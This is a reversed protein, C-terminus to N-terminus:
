KVANDIDIVEITSLTENTINQELAIRNAQQTIIKEFLNRIYRANGFNKDKNEVAKTIVSQIQTKAEDTLVFENKKAVYDFIQTLENISYDPFEIYRNFRSQLGSNSNIFDEMEKSYGALIVILRDRDDEMRKLLTSIAEKGYDNQGGQVLSYAEDIFLVGDLASDIIANTKPATQGVYEGILGSRDTEVLHGKKLVGLDKYIGAVIRAVTTKGTGPNGTFVCHYSINSTKMGRSERMQQVKVLNYLNNVETKVNTLGILKELEKAPDSITPVSVPNNKPEENDPVLIKMLEVKLIEDRKKNLEELFEKEVDSIENDSKIIITMYRHLLTIYKMALDNDVQKLLFVLNLEGKSLILDDKDLENITKDLAKSFEELEKSPNDQYPNQMIDSFVKFELKKSYVLHSITLLMCQGEYTSRDLSHGLKKFCTVIDKMALLNLIDAIILDSNPYKKNFIGSEKLEVIFKTYDEITKSIEVFIHGSILSQLVKIRQMANNRKDSSEKIHSVYNNLVNMKCIELIEGIEKKSVGRKSLEIVIKERQDNSLKKDSLKAIVNDKEKKSLSSKPEAVLNDPTITRTVASTSNKEVRQTFRDM